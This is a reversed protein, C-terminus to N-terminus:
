FYHKSSDDPRMATSNQELREREKAECEPDLLDMCSFHWAILPDGLESTYLDVKNDSAIVPIYDWGSDTPIMAVLFGDQKPLKSANFPIILDVPGTLKGGEIQFNYFNGVQVVEKPLPPLSKAKDPNREITVSVEGDVSTEPVSIAAGDDLSIQTEQASSATGTTSTYDAPKFKQTCATILFAFIAFPILALFRKM